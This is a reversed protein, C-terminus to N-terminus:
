VLEYRGGALRAARGSTVSQAVAEAVQVAARGDSGTIAPERDEAIANVFEQLQAAVHSQGEGVNLALPQGGRYLLNTNHHDDAYAAGTSGIVSLSFYDSGEPLAISYDILAMGGEPFGLHVQVYDPADLQANAQRRGVAYLEMPLAEFLWNAMDLERIVQRMVTGSGDESDLVLQRWGGAGMPEWRHIRLLGLAGLKGSALSEKVRQNSPMFRTSQGVMLRVGASRCAEIAADAAETSPALPTEIFVHKGAAAAIEVPPGHATNTSSILVADFADTNQALLDDLSEASISAGLDHATSRAKDLDPDVAAAFSAGELRLRVASYETAGNGCGVMALRTM